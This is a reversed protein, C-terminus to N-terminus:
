HLRPELGANDSEEAVEGLGHGGIRDLLKGLVTGARAGPAGVLDLEEQLGNERWRLLDAKRVREDVDCRGM